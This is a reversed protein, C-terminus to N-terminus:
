SLVRAARDVVAINISVLLTAISFLRRAHGAAELLAEGGACPRFSKPTEAVGLVVDSVLKEYETPEYDSDRDSDEFFWEVLV